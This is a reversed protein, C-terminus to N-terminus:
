HPFSAPKASSVSSPRLIILSTLRCSRSRSPVSWDRTSPAIFREWAAPELRRSFRTLDLNQALVSLCENAGNYDRAVYDRVVIAGCTECNLRVIGKTGQYALVEGKERCHRLARCRIMSGPMNTPLMRLCYQHADILDILM